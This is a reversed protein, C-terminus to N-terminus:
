PSKTARISRLSIPTPKECSSAGPVGGANRKARSAASCRFEDCTRWTGLIRWSEPEFLDEACDPQVVLVSCRPVGLPGASARDVSDIFRPLNGKRLRSPEVPAADCSLRLEAAIAARAITASVM